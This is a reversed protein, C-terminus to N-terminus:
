RVAARAPRLGSVLMYRGKCPLHIRYAISRRLREQRPISSRSRRGDSPLRVMQLPWSAYASFQFGEAGAM